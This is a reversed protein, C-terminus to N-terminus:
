VLPAKTQHLSKQSDAYNQISISDKKIFSTILARVVIIAIFILLIAISLAIYITSTTAVFQQLENDNFAIDIKGDSFASDFSMLNENNGDGYSAIVKDDSGKISFSVKSSKGISDNAILYTLFKKDFTLLLVGIVKSNSVVPAAYSLLWTDSNTYVEAQTEKNSGAKSLLMLETNNRPTFGKEKLGATGSLDWPIIKFDVAMNFSSQLISQIKKLEDPNNDNITNILTSNNGLKKLSEQNSSIHKNIIEQLHNATVTKHAQITNTNHQSFYAFELWVALIIVPLLCLFALIFWPLLLMNKHSKSSEQADINNEPAPPKEGKKSGVKADPAAKNNEKKAAPSTKTSM